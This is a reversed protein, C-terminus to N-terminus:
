SAAISPPLKLPIEFTNTLVKIKSVEVKKLPYIVKVRNYVEAAIPGLAAEQIFEEFTLQNAKEEIVEWAKKRIARKQSKKVRHATIVLVFVRLHVGDKTVIDRIAEVKSTGRRILSKLYDRSLEFGKFQTFAKDEEIRVVQFKLKIPLQSIDKTIDYLSVEITRGLMHKDSNAPVEGLVAFGFSSPAYLTYWKKALWRERAARSIRISSM